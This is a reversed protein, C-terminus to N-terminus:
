ESETLVQTRESLPDSSAIIKNNVHNVPPRNDKFIALLTDALRYGGLALQQKVIKFGNEIYEETPTKNQEIGNYVHDRALVESAASWKPVSPEKLFDKLKERTYENMIATASEELYRWHDDNFPARLEHYKKLCLDWFLHLNNAGVMKIIFKNGGMDGKPFEDSVLSVNHLPQHIDGFLHVLYRLMFSKGLFQNVDSSKKNRLTAKCEDIAWVINTPNKPLNPHIRNKYYYIDNFHWADFAKWNLYKIDDPFEAEEVFKHQDEKTFQSLVGLISELYPILTADKQEIEKQAILATLFHGTPHWCIACSM